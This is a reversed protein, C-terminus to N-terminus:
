VDVLYHWCCGVGVVVFVALLLWCCWGVYMLWNVVGVLMLCLLGLWCCGVVAVLM